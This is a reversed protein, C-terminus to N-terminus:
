LLMPEVTDDDRAPSPRWRAVVAASKDPGVEPDIAPTGDDIARDDRRARHTPANRADRERTLRRSVQTTDVRQDNMPPPPNPLLYLASTTIHSMPIRIPTHM